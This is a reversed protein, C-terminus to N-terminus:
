EVAHIAEMRPDPSCECWSEGKLPHRGCEPCPAYETVAQRARRGSVVLEVLERLRMLDLDSLRPLVAIITGIPTHRQADIRESEALLTALDEDSLRPLLEAVIAYQAPTM